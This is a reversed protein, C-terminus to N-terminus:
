AERFTEPLRQKLDVVPRFLDGQAEVRDLVDDAEFSLSMMDRSGHVAEIEDWTVPTSVTPRDKARLSYPAVTSKHDDNQSWDVLVKGRRVTTRMNATVKRPMSRQLLLAMGHAFRKTHDFTVPTNLPVHIHLGKGGSTKPFAQLDLEGLAERLKLAVALCDLLNAPPGPDLDFVVSTPTKLDRERVLLPHIELSALNALWVLGAADDVVCFDVSGEGVPITDVWEPRRAPCEKQYFSKGDVGDPYRKLTLPRGAIHPLMAKSVRYYYDIVDAKTFGVSPYLIKGLNSVKLTKSGIRVESKSM